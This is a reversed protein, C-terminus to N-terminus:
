ENYFYYKENKYQLNNISIIKGNVEDYNVQDKKTLVKLKCLEILEDRLQARAQESNIKLNNVFEKIKLIKHIPNLKTWPKNYLDNDSFIQKHVETEVPSITETKKETQSESIKEKEQDLNDLLKACHSELWQYDLDANVLNSLVSKYYKLELKKKIINIDM